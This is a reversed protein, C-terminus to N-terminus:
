LESCAVRFGIYDDRALPQDWSRLSARALKPEHFWATGRVVRLASRPDDVWATGDCPAACYSGHWDDEVWQVVRGYLQHIGWRERVADSIRGVYEWEAESPLRCGAWAAFRRAEEWSVGVVPLSPHNRAADDWFKPPQEEPSEGLYSAYQQNTVPFRGMWFSPLVVQHRPSEDLANPSGMWFTGGPIRAFELGRKRVFRQGGGGSSVAIHSRAGSSHQVQSGWDCRRGRSAARLGADCAGHRRLLSPAAAAADPIAM